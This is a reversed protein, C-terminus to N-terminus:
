EYDPPIQYVKIIYDALDHFIPVASVEATKTKPNDLKVLILFKPNYAPFFGIFSQWTKESYGKEGIKPQSATGTKGGIYYGPIKARRGSGKEIVSVLMSTLQTTTKQSLIKKTENSRKLNEVLYPTVLTGGNAIASYAKILQIPTVAIGQGFSATAFNVERGSKLEKNESFIEPLDIGTKEFFGFNQIYNLFVSGGIQKQAFVAGTNISKELVQTMTIEGPYRKKAYNQIIWGNIRIEGPDEYTTQPTIKGEELAAAMTITKFVSGPEFLNQTAPNKFIELNDAFQFYCNPDFSPFTALAIIKGSNPDSVIIQGGEIDFNEKAKKLLKEAQYQIRYDLTLILNEGKKLIEDYYEELGYRGNGEKDVFGIVAAALEKQPYYREIRSELFVGELDLKKIRDVEEENLRKKIVSFNKQDGIKEMIEEESLNLIESLTKATKEKDKIKKPIAFLYFYERNLVLPEKGSFFIEGRKVLNEKFSSHIGFSLARYYNGKLVQLFFLRSILVLFFISVLFVILNERFNKM